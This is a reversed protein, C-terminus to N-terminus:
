PLCFWCMLRGWREIWRISGSLTHFLARLLGKDGEICVARPRNPTYKYLPYSTRIIWASVGNRCQSNPCPRRIENRNRQPTRCSWLLFHLIEGKWEGYATNRLLSFRILSVVVPSQVKYSALPMYWPRFFGHNDGGFYFVANVQRIIRTASVSYWIGVGLLVDILFPELYILGWFM